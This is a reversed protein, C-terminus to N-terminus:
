FFGWSVLYSLLSFVSYVVLFPFVISGMSTDIKIRRSIRINQREPKRINRTIKDGPYKFIWNSFIINTGFRLFLFFTHGCALYSFGTVYRKCWILM